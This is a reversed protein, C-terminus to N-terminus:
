RKSGARDVTDATPGAPPPPPPGRPGGARRILPPTPPPPRSPPPPPAPPPHETSATAAHYPRLPQPTCRLPAQPEAHRTPQSHSPRASLSVYASGGREDPQSLWGLSVRAVWPM